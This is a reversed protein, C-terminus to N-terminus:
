AASQQATRSSRICCISMRLLLRRACRVTSLRHAVSIFTRGTAVERLSGLIGAETATDLASTAEDAILLRPNRLVARAIAM